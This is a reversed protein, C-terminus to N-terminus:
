AVPVTVKLFKLEADGSMTDAANNADRYIMVQIADAGVWGLTAVSVSVTCRVVFKTTSGPDCSITSTTLSQDWTENDGGTGGYRVDWTVNGTTVSNSWWYFTFDVTGSADVDSPVILSVKRGEDTTADFSESFEDVNTGTTKTLPPISDAAELPELSSAPFIFERSPLGSITALSLDVTGKFTTTQNSIRLAETKDTVNAVVLSGAHNTLEWDDGASSNLKVHADAVTDRIEFDPTAVLLGSEMILTPDTGSLDFTWTNSSNAADSWTTSDVTTSDFSGGAATITVADTGANTTLTINTGATLTLTDTTSDAVVDSQGSVAITGFTNASASGCASGTGSITGISSVQLCQTSGGIRPLRVTGDGELILPENGDTTDTFYLASGSVYAEWDDGSTADWSLAPATGNITLETSLLNDTFGQVYLGYDLTSPSGVGNLWLGYRNVTTGSQSSDLQNAFGYMNTVTGGSTDEIVDVNMGYMGATTGGGASEVQLSIGENNTVTSNSSHYNYIRAGRLKGLNGTGAHENSVSLTTQTGTNNAGGASILQGYLALPSYSGSVNYIPSGVSQIGLGSTASNLASSTVDLVADPTIDGLGLRHTSTDWFFNTNDHQLRVGDSYVISGAPFSTSNMLLTRLGTDDLWLLDRKDTKNAIVLGSSGDNYIEHDDGASSDFELHANGSADRIELDGGAVLLGSEATLSVDTGSLDWTWVQSANAGAAFTVDLFETPDVAVTITSGAGADSLDLYTGATLVREDTLTANTSLTVYTADEPAASGSGTITCETENNVSDDACSVGAGILNLAGRRNEDTGDDRILDYGPAFSDADAWVVPTLLNGALLLSASFRLRSAIREM